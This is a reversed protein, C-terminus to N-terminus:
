KGHRRALGIHPFADDHSARRTAREHTVDEHRYSEVVWEAARPDHSLEYLARLRAWYAPLSLKGDSLEQMLAIVGAQFAPTSEDM